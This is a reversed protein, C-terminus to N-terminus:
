RLRGKMSSGEMNHMYGLLITLMLRATKEEPRLAERLAQPISLPYSLHVNHLVRTKVRATV